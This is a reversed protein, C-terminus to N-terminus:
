AGVAVGDVYHVAVGTCAVQEGMVPDGDPHIVSGLV